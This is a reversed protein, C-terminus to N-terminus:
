QDDDLDCDIVTGLYQKFTTDSLDVPVSGQDDDGDESIRVFSLDSPESDALVSAQSTTRSRDETVKEEGLKLFQFNSQIEPLSPNYNVTPDSNVNVDACLSGESIPVFSPELQHSTVVSPNGYQSILVDASNNPLTVISDETEDSVSVNLQDSQDNGSTVAEKNALVVVFSADSQDNSDMHDPSRGDDAPLNTQRVVDSSTDIEGDSSTFSDCSSDRLFEVSPKSPLKVDSKTRVGVVKLIVDLQKLYDKHGNM